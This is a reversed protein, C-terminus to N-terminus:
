LHNITYLVMTYLVKYWQCHCVFGNMGFLPITGKITYSVLWVSCHYTGKVINLARRSTTCHTYSVIAQLSQYVCVSSFYNHQVVIEDFPNHMCLACRVICVNPNILRKLFSLFFRCTKVVTHNYCYRHLIVSQPAHHVIRRRCTEETSFPMM